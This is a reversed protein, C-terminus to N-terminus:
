LNVTLQFTGADHPGDGEPITIQTSLSGIQRFSNPQRPDTPHVLLSYKGPPVNPVRFSGDEDFLLVYSREMAAMIRSRERFYEQRAQNQQQILRQREEPTANPPFSIPPPVGAPLPAQFRLTHVDRLWDIPVDVATPNRPKVNVKGIVTRGTGGIVVDNTEGSKVTIRVDHSLPITGVNRNSFQYRLYAIRPGPPVMDFFFSGDPNPKAQYYLYLPPSRGSAGAQQYDTHIAVSQNPEVKDGVRLVGKVYGWPQLVIKGSKQLDSVPIQAFGFKPHAACIVDADVKPTLEFGGNPDTIVVEYYSPTRRFKGGQDMYANSSSDLLVVETKGAPAGSASVVKGTFPMAKKLEFVNSYSGTFTESLLPEYGKAEIVLTWQAQSIGGLTSSFSGKRGTTSSYRNWRKPTNNEYQYRKVVTFRDIPKKTEADIVKGAVTLMRSYTFQYESTSPLTTSHTHVYHGTKEFRFTVPGEPAHEWVFRGEADTQTRWQLAKTGQWNM